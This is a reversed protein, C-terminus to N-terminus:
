IERHTTVLTLKIYARLALHRPDWNKYIAATSYKCQVVVINPTVVFSRLDIEGLWTCCSAVKPLSTM